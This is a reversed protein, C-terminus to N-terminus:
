PRGAGQSWVCITFDPLNKVGFYAQDKQEKVFKISDTIAEMLMGWRRVGIGMNEAARIDKDTTGLLLLRWRL